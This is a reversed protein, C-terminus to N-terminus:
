KGQAQFWALLGAVGSIGLFGLLFKGLSLAGRTEALETRIERLEEDIRDLREIIRDTQTPRLASPM